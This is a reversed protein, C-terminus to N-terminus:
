HLTTPKYGVIYYYRSSSIGLTIRIIVSNSEFSPFTVRLLLITPLKLFCWASFVVLNKTGNVCRNPTYVRQDSHYVHEPGMLRGLGSNFSTIIEDCSYSPCPNIIECLTGSYIFSAFYWTLTAVVFSLNTFNWNLHFLPACFWVYYRSTGWTFKGQGFFFNCSIERPTPTEM